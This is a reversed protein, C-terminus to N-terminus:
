AACASRMDAMTQGSNQEDGAPTLRLISALVMLELISAVDMKRCVSARYFEATTEDVGLIGALELVSTGEALLFFVEREDPRMMTFRAAALADHDRIKGTPHDAHFFAASVHLDETGFARAILKRVDDSIPLETTAM